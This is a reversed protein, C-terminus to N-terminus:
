KIKAARETYGKSTARKISWITKKNRGEGENNNWLNKKNNRGGETRIWISKKM